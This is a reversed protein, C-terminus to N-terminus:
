KGICFESFIRDLLDGSATEGTVLGLSDRAALLDVSLLDVPDGRGLTDLAHALSELATELARQHRINSVVASEAGLGAAGILDAIERELREIGEGTSASASVVPADQGLMRRVREIAPGIDGEPILDVKNAVVIMPRDEVKALLEREEDTVGAPAEVVFVIVDASELSREALEVGMREVPDETTRLGATDIAIVPIGHIDVTEEVLDRTTGPIPTVIARSRRVLANLLSSKGVNVMGAIVMRIGERVARGARFSGLLEEVEGRARALEAEIWGQDPEPVDDPFDISAEIAAVVALIRERSSRVRDSLRGDLQSLAVRRAEDTRARVLDNVAEAQALDIRGSAFARRTFEGPEALRAGAALVAELASRITPVGGHCSIEVVDEGTYSHPGRYVIFVADDVAEHTEPHILRAHHATHSAFDCLRSGAASRFVRDVVEIARPGSVRVVGIGGTGAPTAVAAITDSEIHAAM